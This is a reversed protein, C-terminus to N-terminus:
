PVVTFEYDDSVASDVSRNGYLLVRMAYRGGEQFKLDGELAAFSLRLGGNADTYGTAMAYGPGDLDRVELTVPLNDLSAPYALIDIYGGLEDPAYLVKDLSIEPEIGFPDIGISSAYVLHVSATVGGLPVERDGDLVWGVVNVDVQSGPDVGGGDGPDIWYRIEKTEGPALPIFRESVWATWDKPLGTIELRVVQFVATGNSVDLTDGVPHWPSSSTTNFDGVNEQAENNNANLEGNQYDIRVIICTHSGVNPQWPVPLTIAEGNAPISAITRRDLLTWQGTDGIGAPTTVYFLVAVNSAAVNGDNHVRAYIQNIRNVQPRDGNRIPQGSSDTYEYVNWGNTPSDIWIDPSEWPPPSWPDIRLDFFPDAGWTVKVQLNTSSGPVASVEIKLNGYTQDTFTDGASLPGGFFLIPKRTANVHGANDDADTIIVGNAPLHQSGTQGAIKQRNEVYLHTSGGVDLRLSQVAGAPPSETEYPILITTDEIRSTGTPRTLVKLQTGSFWGAVKDKHWGTTQSGCDTCDMIDWGDVGRSPADYLDAFDGFAHGFEHATRSWGRNTSVVVAPLNVYFRHGQADTLTFTHAPYSTGRHFPGIVVVVIQSYNRVDFGDDQAAQMSDTFFGSANQALDQLAEAEQIAKANGSAKARTIDAQVWMYDDYTHPLQYWGTAPAHTFAFTLQGAPHQPSTFSSERYFTAVDTFEAQESTRLNALNPTTDDSTRVYIVLTPQNEGIPQGAQVPVGGEFFYEDPGVMGIVRLVADIMEPSEWQVSQQLLVVVYGNGTQLGVVRGDIQVPLWHQQQWIDAVQGLDFIADPAEAALQEVLAPRAEVLDPADGAAIMTMLITPFESPDVSQIDFELGQAAATEAIVEWAALRDTTILVRIPRGSQSFATWGTFSLTVMLLVFVLWKWGQKSGFYRLKKFM